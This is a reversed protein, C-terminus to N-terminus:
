KDLEEKIDEDIYVTVNKHLKLFTVPCDTTIKDDNLLKKIADAKKKGSALLIIEEAQLITGMGMSIAYKPVEDENNFFRSNAHITSQTLKVIGTKGNLEPAPENFAIHGNEGIGLIQVDQGGLKEVLKEYEEGANTDHEDKAKPVYTNSKDIDVKDFLNDNMFTRYSEKHGDPLGIYEDLNVSIKDKFSIRGEENAKILENYLGLPTSGTALGLVKIENWNEIMQEAALKSMDDYNKGVVLKM